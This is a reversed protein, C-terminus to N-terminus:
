TLISDIIELLSFEILSLQRNATFWHDFVAALQYVLNVFMQWSIFADNILQVLYLSSLSRLSFNSDTYTADTILRAENNHEM